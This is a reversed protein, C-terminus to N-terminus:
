HCRVEEEYFCRDLTLHTIGTYTAMPPIWPGCEDLTHLFLAKLATLQQLAQLRPHTTDAIHQDSQKKWGACCLSLEGFKQFHTRKRDPHAEVWGPSLEDSTSTECLKGPLMRYEAACYPCAHLEGAACAVERPDLGKPSFLKLEQLQTLGGLADCFCVADEPDEVPVEIALSTLRTAWPELWTGPPLGPLSHDRDIDITGTNDIIAMERLSFFASFAEQADATSRVVM